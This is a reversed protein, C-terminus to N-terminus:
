FSNSAIEGTTGLIFPYNKADIVFDILREVSGKDIQGTETVPTVLPAIVGSYIKKM